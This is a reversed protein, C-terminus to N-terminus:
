TTATFTISSGAASVLVVTVKATDNTDIKWSASQTIGNTITYKGVATTGTTAGVFLVTSAVTVGPDYWATSASADSMVEFTVTFDQIGVIRRRATDGLVTAETLNASHQLTWSGIAEYFTPGTVSGLHGSVVVGLAM